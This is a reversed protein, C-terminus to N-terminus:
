QTQRYTREYSQRFKNHGQPSSDSDQFWILYAFYGEHHYALAFHPRMVIQYVARLREGTFTSLHFFAFVVPGGSLAYLLVLGALGVGCWQIVRGRAM